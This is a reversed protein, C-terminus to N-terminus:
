FAHMLAVRQTEEFAADLCARLQGAVAKVFPERVMNFHNGEVFHVQVGKAAFAGWGATQDHGNATSHEGPRLLTIRGEKSQPMYSLMAGVNIKFLQFMLRLQHLELDPPLINSARACEFLYTLQEDPRLFELENSSFKLHGLDLGLDGAFTEMLVLEGIESIDPAPAPARSDLLALLGVQEGQKQIQQAIEFAVVGGMSWGGLFYPGHSQVARMEELYHTAMEEITTHPFNTGSLGWAQLGYFPQDIGLHHALAAYCLVNGGSPHACFFPLMSNGSQIKVLSSFSTAPEERQRLLGALYEITARQFLTALPLNIGLLQQIRAMLRAALISHGGLKFFDDRVGIPRRGLIEEWIQALRLELVDRPAIFTEVAESGQPELSPLARRNVKGNATLPLAELVVFESPMMYEPLKKALYDRLSDSLLPHGNRTQSFGNIKAAVVAGAKAEGRSPHIAYINYLDTDQVLEDQAIVFNFGHSSLLRTVRQLQGARDHVEIVVQKIRGWDADKIGKLVDLESKEVDIKLLDIREIENESIIESVTRLHCEFQESEFRGEMLDDAYRSLLADQNKLASRALAEDEKADAYAGSM